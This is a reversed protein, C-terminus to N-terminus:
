IVRRATVYRTSWYGTEMSSIGVGDLSPSNHIFQGNGMYIGVHGIEKSSGVRFFVLDGPQLNSKSVAKGADKQYRTGWKLSIGEKAFVYKTFSSCDLLTPPQNAGYKYRTIGKLDKAHQIIRAAVASAEKSTDSVPNSPQPASPAASSNYNLYGTSVYGVQGNVSVKLWYSNVQELVTVKTGKSLLKYVKSSTSPASRFNVGREVTATTGQQSGQQSSGSGQQSEAPKQQNTEQNYTIYSPSLYGVKGNVSVKLWYRNVEELVDISTGPKLLQYVSSSTSPASRFNVSKEVTAPAAMAATASFVMSVLGAAAFAIISKKKM